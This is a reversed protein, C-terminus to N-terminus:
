CISMQVTSRADPIRMLFGSRQRAWYTRSCMTQSPAEWTRRCRWRRAPRESLLKRLGPLGLTDASTRTAATAATEEILRVSVSDLGKTLHSRLEAEIGKWDTGVVFRLQCVAWASPPIAPIPLAIDGAQFTLVELTNWAVVREIPSLAPEGWEPHIEPSSPDSSLEIDKLATRISDTLPPPRMAALIVCGSKSALSSIAHSILLAPNALVGGWNGSHYASKRLDAFLEFQLQGRSGLFITPKETAVRLGDSAVFVDAALFARHEQCIESLGPSGAEEGTESLIKINLGVIGERARIVAALSTMNILFQGKNDAAGRGFWAGDQERVTWPSLGTRWSGEKGQIVDGHGYLLVTPLDEAEKREALLFPLAPAVVNPVVKCAFGMKELLPGIELLLYEKILARAQPNQSETAFGVQRSLVRAFEGCEIFDEFARGAATEEVDEKM